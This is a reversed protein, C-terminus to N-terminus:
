PQPTLAASMSMTTTALGVEEATAAEITSYVRNANHKKAANSVRRGRGSRRYAVTDNAKSSNSSNSDDDCGHWGSVLAATTAIALSKLLDRRSLQHTAM